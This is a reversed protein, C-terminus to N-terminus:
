AHRAGAAFEELKLNLTEVNDAAEISDLKMSGRHPGFRARSGCAENPRKWKALLKRLV